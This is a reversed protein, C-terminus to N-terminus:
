ARAWRQLADTCSSPTHVSDTVNAFALRCVGNRLVFSSPISQDQPTKHTSHALLAVISSRNETLLVTLRTGAQGRLVLGITGFESTGLSTGVSCMQLAHTYLKKTQPTM